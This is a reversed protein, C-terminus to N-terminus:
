GQESRVFQGVSLDFRNTIGNNKNAEIVAQEMMRKIRELADPPMPDYLGAWNMDGIKKLERLVIRIELETLTGNSLNHNQLRKLLAAVRAELDKSDPKVM